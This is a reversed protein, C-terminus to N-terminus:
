GQQGHRGNDGKRLAASVSHLDENPSLISTPLAAVMSEAAILVTLALIVKM